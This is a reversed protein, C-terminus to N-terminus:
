LLYKRALIYNSYYRIYFKLFSDIQQHPSGKPLFSLLVLQFEGQSYFTRCTFLSPSCSLVPYRQCVSAITLHQTWFYLLSTFSSYHLNFASYSGMLNPMTHIISGKPISENNEDMWLLQRRRGSSKAIHSFLSMAEAKWSSATEGHLLVVQEILMQQYRWPPSVISDHVKVDQMENLRSEM